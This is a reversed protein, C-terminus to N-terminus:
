AETFKVGKVHLLCIWLRYLDLREDLQAYNKEILGCVIADMDPYKMGTKIAVRQLDVAVTLSWKGHLVALLFKVALDDLGLEKAHAFLDDPFALSEVLREPVNVPFRVKGVYTKEVVVASVPISESMPSFYRRPRDNALM